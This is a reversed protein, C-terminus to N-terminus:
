TDVNTPWLSLSLETIDLNCVIDDLYAISVLCCLKLEDIPFDSLPVIM